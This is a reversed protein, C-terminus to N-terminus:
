PSKVDSLSRSSTHRQLGTYESQDLRYLIEEPTSLSKSGLGCELELNKHLDYEGVLSRSRKMHYDPHSVSIKAPPPIKRSVSQERPYLLLMYM